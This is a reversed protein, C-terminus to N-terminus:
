RIKGARVLADLTSLVEEIPTFADFAHLQLLDIHDAASGACRRTWTGDILRRARPAPMTRAM